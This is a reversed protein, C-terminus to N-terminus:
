RRSSRTRPVGHTFHIKVMVSPTTRQNMAYAIVDTKNIIYGVMKIGGPVSIANVIRANAQHIM